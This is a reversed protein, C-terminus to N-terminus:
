GKRPPRLPLTDVGGLLRRIFCFGTLASLLSGLGVIVVITFWVPHDTLFFGSILAAAGLIGRWLRGGSGLNEKM